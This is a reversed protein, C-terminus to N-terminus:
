IWRLAISGVGLPHPHNRMREPGISGQTRDPDGISSGLGPELDQSGTGGQGAALVTWLATAGCGAHGPDCLEGARLLRDSFVLEVDEGNEVVIHTVGTAGAQFLCAVASLHQYLFGRHVAEIRALQRSDLNFNEIETASAM